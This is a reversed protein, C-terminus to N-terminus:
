KHNNGNVLERQKIKDALALAASIMDAEGAVASIVAVGDVGTALVAELNDVTIGGIAVVPIGVSQRIERLASLGIPSAADDKSPTPFIPGVGLYDAGERQAALAEALNTASAGIIMGGPLIRKAEGVPLDDQGLHVGDADAAMAIDLRDNVIFNCNAEKTIFSLQKAIELLEKSSKEKDRLQIISAGGALAARAVDLHSRSKEPVEATIVYLDLNLARNM